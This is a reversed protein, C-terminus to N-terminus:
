IHLFGLCDEFHAVECGDWQYGFIDDTKNVQSSLDNHRNAQATSQSDWLSVLVALLEGDAEFRRVFM